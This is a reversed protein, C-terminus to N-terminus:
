YGTSDKRSLFFMMFHFCQMVSSVTIWASMRMVQRISAAIPSGGLSHSAVGSAAVRTNKSLVTVSPVLVRVAPPPPWAQEATDGSPRGM